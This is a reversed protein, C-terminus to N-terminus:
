FTFLPLKGWITKSGWVATIKAQGTEDETKHSKPREWLVRPVCGCQIFFLCYVIIGFNLMCLQISLSFAACVCFHLYQIKSQSFSHKLLTLDKTIEPCTSWFTCTYGNCRTLFSEFSMLFDIVACVVTCTMLIVIEPCFFFFFLFVFSIMITLVSLIQTFLRYHQFM